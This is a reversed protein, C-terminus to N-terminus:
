YVLLGESREQYRFAGRQCVREPRVRPIFDGALIEQRCFVTFASEGNGYDPWAMGVVLAADRQANVAFHSAPLNDFPHTFALRNDDVPVSCAQPCNRM